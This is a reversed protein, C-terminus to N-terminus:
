GPQHGTADSDISEASIDVEQLKDILWAFAVATNKIKGLRKIKVLADFLKQYKALPAAYIEQSVLHPLASDLLKDLDQVEEPLFWLTIQETRVQEANFASFSIKELEAITESDLGSYLKQEIGQIESWLSALIQKDDEGAIANHSLQKAIKEDQGQFPIVLVLIRLLDAQIAAKARHNGSLVELNQDPLTHCLPVSSLMGDREVNNRLQEFQSRRMFRANHKLLILSRPDVMRLEAKDGYMLRSIEALRANLEEEEAEESTTASAEAVLAAHGTETDM